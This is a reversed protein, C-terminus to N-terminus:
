VCVSRTEARLYGNVAISTQFLGKFAREFRPFVFLLTVRSLWNKPGVQVDMVGNVQCRFLHRLHLQAGLSRLLEDSPVM